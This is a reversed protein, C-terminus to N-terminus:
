DSDRAPPGGWKPAPPTYRAFAELAEGPEAAYILMDAYAPALFDADVMRAIMERLPRFYGGVDLFGSPKAHFGLQAWTWQEFMEELAGAGGPLTLFADALEAMRWKREHMSNVVHLESLGPHAIEREVLDRPMVGVVRGGSALAADAVAGMLGVRAGGYVLTLRAGAIAVGTATAAALYAPDRGFASGCYVCVSNM